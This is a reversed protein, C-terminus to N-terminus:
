LMKKQIISAKNIIKRLEEINPNITEYHEKSLELKSLSEPVSYKIGLKDLEEPFKAPHATELLVVGKKSGFLNLKKIASWGVAGHPELVVGKEYASIMAERTEKDSVSSAQVDKKLKKMDPMKIIRGKEDMRGSYLWILRALNSPNGVNMANSICKKSPVVPHYEGSKLFNPFEDNENVAAVFRLPLGMRKAILGSVLNGFNGSPVVFIKANTRFYIYFYYIAQPILRGINISNASSLGGIEDLSKKALAQCDDFKGNVLLAKINGNMTTMQKRQIDTIEDKPMLIVVQVNKKNQFAAAVAGGTDGSTATLVLIKSKNKEAAYSVLRAVLQAAFDKFSASPGNDLRAIYFNDHMEIPIGFSYSEDCMSKLEVDGIDAFQRMIAFALQRYDLHRMLKLETESFKPIKQPVFLGKDEALGKKVADTFFAVSKENTSVYKLSSKKKTLQKLAYASVITKSLESATKADADLIIDAYRSFLKKREKFLTDIGKKKLKVIGRRDADSMRKKITDVTANLFVKFCNELYRTAKSSYIISGGPALVSSNLPLKNIVNGEMEIYANDGNDDLFKQRDPYIKEIESDGDYFKFGLIKAVEKGITSKGVYPMGILLIGQMPSKPLHLNYLIKTVFGM